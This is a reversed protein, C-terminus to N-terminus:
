SDRLFDRVLANVRATQDRQVWHGCNDFIHLESGPIKEQLLLGRMPGGSDNRGWLLMTPIKIRHLDNYIQPAHPAALRLLFADANKGTSMGYYERVLDETVASKNMLGEILTQRASELSPAYSARREAAERNRQPSEDAAHPSLSGSAMLVLREVRPDDMAICCAIYSGDSQGWMSYRELKMADIFARAHAVRGGKTFDVPNDTRGFGAEDLAYVTFGAEALPDLNADWMVHVSAGPASGHLLVVAPGSGRKVYYTRLGLVDVYEGVIGVAM